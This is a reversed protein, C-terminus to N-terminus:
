KAKDIIIQQIIFSGSSHKLYYSVRFTGSSTKLTGITYTLGSGSKGNHIVAFTSPKHTQFFGTFREKAKTKSLLQDKGDISVDVRSAFYSALTNADGSEIASNIKQPNYTFAMLAVSMLLILPFSYTQLLRMQHVLTIM